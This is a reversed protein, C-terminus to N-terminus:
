ENDCSEVREGEFNGFNYPTTSKTLPYTWYLCSIYDMGVKNDEYWYIFPFLECRFCSNFVSGHSNTKEHYKLSGCNHCNKYVSQRYGANKYDREIQNICYDVSIRKEQYYALINRLNNRLQEREEYAKDM